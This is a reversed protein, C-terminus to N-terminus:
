SAQNSFNARNTRVAKFLMVVFQPLESEAVKVALVASHFGVLQDWLDAEHVFLSCLKQRSLVDLDAHGAKILIEIKQPIANQWFLSMLFGCFTPLM